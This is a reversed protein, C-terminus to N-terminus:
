DAHPPERSLPARLGPHSADLLRRRASELLILTSYLDRRSRPATDDLASALEQAGLQTARALAAARAEPALHSYGLVQRDAAERLARVAAAHLARGGGYRLTFQGTGRIQEALSRRATDPAPELPGFRPWSRWLWLALLVAALLIAGWGNRWMLSLLSPGPGDSLFYITDGRRLQVADVFLLANDDDFLQPASPLEGNIITVSGRGVTVRVGELQGASNRLTWSPRAESQLYTGEGLCCVRYHRQAVAGPGSLTEATVDDTQAVPVQYMDEFAPPLRKIGTWRELERADVDFIQTTAIVLRGGGPVWRELTAVRAPFRAFGWSGMVITGTAPPKGIESRSEGHAGLLDALREAAYFPDLAAKGHPPVLTDVEKWYTNRAIWLILLALGALVLVPALFSRSM